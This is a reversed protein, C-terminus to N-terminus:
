KTSESVPVTEPITEILPTTIKAPEEIITSM